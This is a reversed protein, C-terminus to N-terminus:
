TTARPGQSHLFLTCSIKHPSAMGRQLAIKEFDPLNYLLQDQSIRLNIDERLVWSGGSGDQKLELRHALGWFRDGSGRERFWRHPICASGDVLMTPEHIYYDSYLTSTGKSLRIMPTLFSGDIKERWRAAEWAQRLGQGPEEPYFHLHPRILPNAM